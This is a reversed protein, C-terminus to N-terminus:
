ILNAGKLIKIANKDKESVYENLENIFEDGVNAKALFGCMASEKLSERNMLLNATVIKNIDSMSKKLEYLDMEMKKQISDQKNKDECILSEIMANISKNNRESLFKLHKYEEDDLRITIKKLSLRRKNFSIPPM